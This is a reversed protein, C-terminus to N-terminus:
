LLGYVDITHSDPIDSSSVAHYVLPTGNKVFETQDQWAKLDQLDILHVPNASPQQSRRGPLNIRRLILQNLEIFAESWSPNRSAATGLVKCYKEGAFPCGYHTVVSRGWHAIAKTLPALCPKRLEAGSNAVGVFQEWQKA